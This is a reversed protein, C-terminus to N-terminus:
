DGFREFGDDDDDMDAPLLDSLQKIVSNYNKITNNYAQLAPNTREIDYRGQCMSTVVGNKNVDEQLEALTQKMFKAESLLSLALKSKNGGITSFVKELKSLDNVRKKM